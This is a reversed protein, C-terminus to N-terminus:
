GTIAMGRGSQRDESRRIQILAAHGFAVAFFAPWLSFSMFGAIIAAVALGNASKRRPEPVPPYAIPPPLPAPYPPRPTVDATLRELDSTWRAAYVAALREDLEDADIRGEVAAKHLRGVAAERDEDSARLYPQPPPPSM